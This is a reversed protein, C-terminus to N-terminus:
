CTTESVQSVPTDTCSDPTGLHRIKPYVLTAMANHGPAIKPYVPTGMANHGPGHDVQGHDDHDHYRLSVMIMIIMTDATGALTALRGPDGSPLRYAVSVSSVGSGKPSHPYGSKLRGLPKRLARVTDARAPCIHTGASVRYAGLTARTAM